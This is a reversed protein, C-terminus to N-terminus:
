VAEAEHAQAVADIRHALDFDAATLSGGASHTTVAFRVRGWRLDIDAHHDVRREVEAVHVIMAVAAQYEISFSREIVGGSRKWGPLKRLEEGIAAEDLPTRRGAM